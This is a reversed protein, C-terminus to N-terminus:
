STQNVFGKVNFSKMDQNTSDIYNTTHVGLVKRLKRDLLEQREKTQPSDTTLIGEYMISYGVARLSDIDKKIKQYYEPTNIHIVGIYVIMKEGNTMRDVMYRKNMWNGRLSYISKACSCLVIALTCATLYKKM